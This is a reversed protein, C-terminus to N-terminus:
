RPTSGYSSHSRRQRSRLRYSSLLAEPPNRARCGAGDARARVSGEASGTAGLDLARAALLMNQVAPYISSGATRSPAEGPLYPVIWVPAEHIHAASYEAADLTWTLRHFVASPCIMSRSRKCSVTSTYSGVPRLCRPWNSGQSPRCPPIGSGVRETSSQFLHDIADDAIIPGRLM